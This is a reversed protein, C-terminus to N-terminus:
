GGHKAKFKLLNTWKRDLDSPKAIVPCFPEDKNERYFELAKRIQDQTHESLLHEAAQLETRNSKWHLPNIGLVEGFVGFIPNTAKKKSLPKPNDNVVEYKGPTEDGLITKDIRSKDLTVKTVRETVKENSIKERHRAQREANTLAKEQRKKWNQIRIIRGEKEITIMKMQQFKELVSRMSLSKANSNTVDTVGSKELLIEPTLFEVKGPTTSVSALCLLTIWCSREEANLSAIKPDSLYEGGYLKFWYNKNM